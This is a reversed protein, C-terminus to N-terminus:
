GSARPLVRAAADRFEETPSLLSLILFSERPFDYFYGPHVLVGDEELLGIVLGEESGLTPVQLVAYWGGEARLRQIGPYRAVAEDLFGLNDRVRARIQDAVSRGARLLTGAALQVSTSVSLFSDCIFDLRELAPRALRDPGGVVMWGLKVQPLGVAKSLGGLTFTLLDPDNVLGGARDAVAPDWTYRDFVEDSVLAVDQRLALERVRALDDAAVWSGTPNNPNVMLLARVRPELGREVSDLDVRWRGYYELQYPSSVVGELRTLYEFLPYSPQPVLALDGPDCLLKFLVAYSESTSATLVIREPSVEVGRGALDDAVSRRAELHGRPHPRYVLGDPVDLSGLLDPPYALGATTPNSTTLDLLPRGGARLRAVVRAVRNSGLPPVRASFM